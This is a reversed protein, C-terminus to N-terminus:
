NKFDGDKLRSIYNRYEISNDNLKTMNRPMITIVDTFHITKSLSCEISYFGHKNVILEYYNNSIFNFDKKTESNFTWNEKVNNIKNIEELKCKINKNNQNTIRTLNLKIKYFEINKNSSDMLRSQHDMLFKYNLEIIDEVQVADDIMDSGGSCNQYFKKIRKFSKNYYSMSLSNFTEVRSYTHSFNGSSIKMKPPLNVSVEMVYNTNTIFLILILIIVFFIFKLNRNM